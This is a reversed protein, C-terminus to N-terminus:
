LTVGHLLVAPFSLEFADLERWLICSHSVRSSLHSPVQKLVLTNCLAQEAELCYNASACLVRKGNAPHFSEGRNKKKKKGEFCQMIDDRYLARNYMHAVAFIYPLSSFHCSTTSIYVCMLGAPGLNWNVGFGPKYWIGQGAIWPHQAAKKNHKRLM